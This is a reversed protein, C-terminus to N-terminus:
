DAQHTEQKCRPQKFMFATTEPIGPVRDICGRPFLVDVTLLGDRVFVGEVVCHGNGAVVVIDGRSISHFEDITM